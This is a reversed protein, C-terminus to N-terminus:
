FLQRLYKRLERGYDPHKLALATIAKLWGLPNGADHRIGEFEYAYIVQKELLLQLADTLQIEGYKGPPTVELTDFIEPKLIYRGVTGLNSPAEDPKPKEILRLVRYINDSVREPEIVGYKVTDQSRIQEVAIVNTEYREYVDMMQKLVPVETDIIDDPLIVAFPEEGVVDKTTLIAHGLGLQEKQRVYCINVLSSLKRM